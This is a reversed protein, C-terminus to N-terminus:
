ALPYLRIIFQQTHKANFKFSMKRINFSIESLLEYIQNKKSNTTSFPRKKFDLRHRNRLNTKKSENAMYTIM